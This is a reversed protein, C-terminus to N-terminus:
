KTVPAPATAPKPAPATQETPAATKAAKKHKKHGKAEAVTCFVFGAVLVAVLLKKM